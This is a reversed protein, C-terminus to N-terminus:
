LLARSSRNDTDASEPLGKAPLIMSQTRLVSTQEENECVGNRGGPHDM